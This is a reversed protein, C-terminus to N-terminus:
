AGLASDVFQPFVRSGIAFKKVAPMQSGYFAFGYAQYAQDPVVGYFLMRVSPSLHSVLSPSHGSFCDM